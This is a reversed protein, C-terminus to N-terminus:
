HSLSSYLHLVFVPAHLPHPPCVRYHVVQSSSHAPVLHSPISLPCVLEFTPVWQHCVLSCYVVVLSSYVVVISDISEGSASCSICPFTYGYKNTYKDITFQRQVDTPIRGIISRLLHGRKGWDYLVFHKTHKNGSIGELM